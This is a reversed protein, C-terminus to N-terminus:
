RIFNAAQRPEKEPPGYKERGPSISRMLFATNRALARMTQLGEGDQATEGPLRSM